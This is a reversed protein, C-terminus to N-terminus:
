IFVLVLLFMILGIAALVSMFTSCEKEEFSALPFPDTRKFQNEYQSYRSIYKNSM